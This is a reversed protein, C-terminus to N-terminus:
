YLALLKQTPYQSIELQPPSNQVLEYPDVASIFSFTLVVEMETHPRLSFSSGPMKPNALQYLGEDFTLFYNTGKLGYSRLGIGQMEKNASSQNAFLVRVVYVYDTHNGLLDTQDAAHYSKLFDMAPVISAGLVKATYGEANVNADDFFDKEFPAATGKPFSQFVPKEVNHNVWYFRIGWGAGLLVALALAIIRKM